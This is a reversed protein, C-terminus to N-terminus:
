RSNKPCVKQEFLPTVRAFKPVGRRNLYPRRREIKFSGPTSIDNLLSVNVLWQCEQLERAGGMSRYGPAGLTIKIYGWPGLPLEGTTIKWLGRSGLFWSKWFIWWFHSILRSNRKYTSASEPRWIMGIGKFFTKQNFKLFDFKWCDVSQKDSM